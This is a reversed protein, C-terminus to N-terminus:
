DGRLGVDLHPVPHRADPRHQYRIGGVQTCVTSRTTREHYENKSIFRVGYGKRLLAQIISKKESGAALSIDKKAQRLSPYTTEGFLSTVVVPCTVFSKGKHKRLEFHKRAELEEDNRCGLSSYRYLATTSHKSSKSAEKASSWYRGNWYFNLSCILELSYGRKADRKRKEREYDAKRRMEKLLEARKRITESRENRKKQLYMNWQYDDHINLAAAKKYKTSNVKTESRLAAMSAYEKGNWVARVANAMPGVDARSNLNMCHKVGVHEDLYVQERDRLNDIACTEVVSFIFQGYKNYVSQMKPNHHRGQQLLRLHVGRRSVIRCSSGFYYYPGIEIRYIGIDNSRYHKQKMGKWFFM